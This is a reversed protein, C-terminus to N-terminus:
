SSSVEPSGDLANAKAVDRVSDHALSTAQAPLFRPPKLFAVDVEQGAQLAAPCALEVSRGGLEVSAHAGFPSPTVRLVRASAVRRDSDRAVIELDGPLVVLQAGDVVTHSPFTGLVTHYQDGDHELDFCTARCFFSAAFATSPEAVLRSARGAEVLQGSNLVVVDDAMALAEERDHTVVVLTLGREAAIGRVLLALEDRLHVDVSALPEDLLLIQPDGILARALALRQREGGSLQSPRRKALPALGVRDLLAMADQRSAAPAVFRLHDIVRKHPWLAGDQFVFGIRRARPEVTMGPESVVHGALEISGESLTELGALCRLLTTKGCGSPGVLATRSGAELEFTIPGLEFGRKRVFRLGSVRVANRASMSDDELRPEVVLDRPISSAPLRRRHSDLITSELM